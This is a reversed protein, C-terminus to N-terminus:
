KSSPGFLSSVTIACFYAPVLLDISTVAFALKEVTDGCACKGAAWWTLSLWLFAGVVWGAKTLEKM